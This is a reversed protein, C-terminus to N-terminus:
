KRIHTCKKVAMKVTHNMKLLKQWRIHHSENEQIYIVVIQIICVIIETQSSTLVFGKKTDYKMNIKYRM